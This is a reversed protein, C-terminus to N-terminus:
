YTFTLKIWVERLHWKFYYILICLFLYARAKSETSHYIPTIKESISKM